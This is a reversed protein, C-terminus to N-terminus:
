TPKPIPVCAKEYVYLGTTPEVYVMKEGTVDTYTFRGVLDLADPTSCTSSKLRLSVRVKKGPMITGLNWTLLNDSSFSPSTALKPASKSAKLTISEPLVMAFTVDTLSSTSSKRPNVLTASFTFPRNPAVRRSPRTRASAMEEDVPLECKTLIVDDMAGEGACFESDLYYGYFTGPPYPPGTKNCNWLNQPGLISIHGWNM